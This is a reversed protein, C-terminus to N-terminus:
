RPSSQLRFVEKPSGCASGAQKALEDANRILDDDVTMLPWADSDLAHDSLALREKHVERLMAPIKEWPCAAADALLPRLAVNFLDLKEIRPRTEQEATQLKVSRNESKLKVLPVSGMGQTDDATVIAAQYGSKFFLLSARVASVKGFLKIRPGWGPLAYHGHGDTVAELTELQGGSNVDLNSGRAQWSAVVVIGALPQGSQADLVTGEVPAARYCGSLIMGALFAGVLTRSFKHITMM